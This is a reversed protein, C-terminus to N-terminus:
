KLKKDVVLTIEIELKVMCLGCINADPYTDYIWDVFGDTINYPVLCGAVNYSQKCVGCNRVKLEEM